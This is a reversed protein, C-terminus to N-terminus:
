LRTREPTPDLSCSGYYRVSSYSVSFYVPLAILVSDRAPGLRSDGELILVTTTSNDVFVLAPDECRQTANLWHCMPSLTVCSSQNRWSFGAWADFPTTEYNTECVWQSGYTIVGLFPIPKWHCLNDSGLACDGTCDSGAECPASDDKRLPVCRHALWACGRTRSCETANQFSLPCARAATPSACGRSRTSNASRTSTANSLRRASLLVRATATPDFEPCAAKWGFVNRAM